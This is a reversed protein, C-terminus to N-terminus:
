NFPDYPYKPNLCFCVQDELCVHLDHQPHFHSCRCYEWNGCVQCDSCGVPDHYLDEDVATLVKQFAEIAM